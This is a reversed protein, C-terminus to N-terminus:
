IVEEAEALWWVAAGWEEAAAEAEMAQQEVKAEMGASEREPEEKPGLTKTMM